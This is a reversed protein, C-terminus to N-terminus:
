FIQVLLNNFFLPVFAQLASKVVLCKVLVIPQHSDFLFSLVNRLFTLIKFAESVLRLFCKFTHSIEAHTFFKDVLWVILYDLM